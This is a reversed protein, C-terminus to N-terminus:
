DRRKGAALQERAAVLFPGAGWPVQFGVPAGGRDKLPAGCGQELEIIAQELM